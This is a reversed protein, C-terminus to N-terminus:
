AGIDGIDTPLMGGGVERPAWNCSKLRRETIESAVDVTNGVKM